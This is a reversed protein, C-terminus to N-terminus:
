NWARGVARMLKLFGSDVFKQQLRLHFSPFTFFFLSFSFFLSFFLHQRHRKSVKEMFRRWRCAAHTNGQVADDMRAEYSGGVVVVDMLFCVAHTLFVLCFCVLLFLIWILFKFFKTDTNFVLILNKKKKRVGISIILLPFSCVCFVCMCLLYPNKKMINKHWLWLKWMAMELWATSSKVSAAKWRGCHPENVCLM